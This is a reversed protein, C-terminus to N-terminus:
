GYGSNNLGTTAVSTLLSWIENRRREVNLHLRRVDAAVAQRIKFLFQWQGSGRM